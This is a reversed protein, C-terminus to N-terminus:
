KGGKVVLQWHNSPGRPPETTDQLARWVSGGYTRLDGCEHQGTEYVGRYIPLGSLKIERVVERGNSKLRLVLTRGDNLAIDLDEASFGNAGDKGRYQEALRQMLASARREFELEWARVEGELIPKVEEVTVSKGDLPKPVARMVLDFVQSVIAAQDADKGNTPTPIAAVAERVEIAIMARVADPDIDKGPKAPPLADVAARVELAVAAKLVTPDADKGPQAPPIMAVRAAVAEDVMGRVAAVEISKGDEPRPIADVMEQLMARVEDRSISKGDQPKPLKSVAVEAAAQLAVFDIKADKGPEGKLQEPNPLADLRASLAQVEKRLDAATRGVYAKVSAVIQETLRAIRESM